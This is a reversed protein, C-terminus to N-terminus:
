KIKIVEPEPALKFNVQFEDESDDIEIVVNSTSMYVFDASVKYIGPQLDKVSYTGDLGVVSGKYINNSEDAVIVNAGILTEGGIASVVSGSIEAAQLSLAGTLMIIALLHKM